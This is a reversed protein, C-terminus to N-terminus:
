LVGGKEERSKELVISIFHRRHLVQQIYNEFLYTGLKDLQFLLVLRQFLVILSFNVSCSFLLFVVLM